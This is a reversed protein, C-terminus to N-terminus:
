RWPRKCQLMVLFSLPMGAFKQFLFTASPWIEFRTGFDFKELNAKL